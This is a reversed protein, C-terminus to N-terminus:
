KSKQATFIKMRDSAVVGRFRRRDKSLSQVRYRDNPLVETVQVPGIYKQVLKGSALGKIIPTREVFVMDGPQFTRACLRNKDYRAKMNIANRAIKGSAKTRNSKLQELRNIPERDPLDADYRLRPQFGYLLESPTQGTTANITM